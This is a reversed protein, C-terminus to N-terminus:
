RESRPDGDLPSLASQGDRVTLLWTKRERFYDVLRKTTAVDLERAFVVPSADIDARNYVWEELFDHPEGYRVIVLHREGTRLLHEELAARRQHWAVSMRAGRERTEHLANAVVLVVVLAVVLKGIARGGLRVRALVDLARVHLLVFLCSLPAVYHPFSWPSCLMVGLVVSITAFALVVDRRHERDRTALPLVVALPMVVYHQVFVILRGALAVGATSPDTAWHLRDLNFRAFDAFVTATRLTDGGSSSVAGWVFAPTAIYRREYLLYPPLLADGTVRHQYFLLWGLGLAVVGLFPAFFRRALQHRAAKSARWADILFATAFCLWFLGGELPRSMALMATGIGAAVGLTVRPSERARLYAGAVLAGACAAVAGGWYSYSWYSCGIIVSALVAALYASRRSSVGGVMWAIAASALGCSVWVGAWPRGFVLQGLALFLGQAPHYKAAYTPESLVHFTEFSRWLPHAPNTLRGSAFTDGHLVYAFEDHTRPRPPGYASAVSAAALMTLVFGVVPPARAASSTREIWRSTRWSVRQRKGRRHAGINAWLCAM